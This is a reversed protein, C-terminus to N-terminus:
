VDLVEVERAHEQIFERRPEVADGMLITFLEDALMADEIMVRKLMRTAPNITTEALQEPNMEGLGKYRQIEVGEGWEKVIEDKERDSYVYVENKGKKIKYLPPQGIYVYGAEILPRMYRYLFTLLLTRIHSGDVDADCLIIIRHYRAKNIDFEEEIGTGFATILTRIEQNQLMKDMRAKEVNLIKGRLPLVAQFTRDRAQKASGGASDGEVLFIECKAPDRESCDALKGPLGGGELLGKRRTLERAKRAAERAEAALISKEVCVQSVKPNEELFETLKESLISEIATRVVSNGLKTKTQGEFQPDKLKVSIIATLGERVDEGSLGESGEKIYGNSRAYDNITRTLANKFGVLHTGGELTNINNAFTHISENYGDTWQMAIEIDVDNSRGSIYIPQEHLVKRNKNLYQVFEIIGGDFKYVQQEGTRLDEAFIKLGKNLFALERLRTTITNFDFDINEFIQSDPKFRITTGTENSDGIVKLDTVPKGREYKQYYIKGKQFVEVEVFESLANVVGLGVGHLGGSVKYAKNDFKGGSHLKTMVLELAPRNYKKHIGVPIGRGDDTITIISGEELSFTINKCYGAMAEDISNDIIEYVLHHLGYTDTSGIYMGPRKRIAELGELVQIKDADYTSDADTQPANDQSM